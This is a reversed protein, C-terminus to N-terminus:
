IGTNMKYVLTLDGICGKGRWLTSSGQSKTASKENKPMRDNRRTEMSGVLLYPADFICIQESPIQSTILAFVKGDHFKYELTFIINFLYAICHWLTVFSHLSLYIFLSIFLAPNPSHSYPVILNPHCSFLRSSPISCTVFLSTYCKLCLFDCHVFGSAPIIKTWPLSM